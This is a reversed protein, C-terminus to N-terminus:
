WTDRCLRKMQSESLRGIKRRVLRGDREYVFGPVARIGFKRVEELHSSADPV